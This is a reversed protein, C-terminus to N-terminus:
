GVYTLGRVRLRGIVRSSSLSVQIVEGEADTCYIPSNSLPSAAVEVVDQDMLEGFDDAEDSVPAGLPVISLQTSADPTKKLVLVETPSRWALDQVAFPVTETGAYMLRAGTAGSVRGDVEHEVRSVLLEDGAAGRVAAILRTGDRSVLFDVVRKGSIGPVTVERLQGGGYVWLKAGRPTRDVLWLRGSVDWAPSLLNTGSLVHEVKAERDEVQALHVTRGDTTVGAVGARQGGDLDVAVRRLQYDATGFAGEVPTWQKDDDIKGLRGGVIGYLGPPSFVYGPDYPPGSDIVVGGAETVPRGDVTVRLRLISPDQRLTWQLQAVMKESQEKSPSAGSGPLDVEASGDADVDVRVDSARDVSPLYTSAILQGGAPPGQLLSRVLSTALQAGRPVYVAEPVLIQAAVDLFYVQQRVFQEDFWRRPVVLAQPAEEIRRQSGEWVMKFELTSEAPTLQGAWAGRSNFREAGELRVRVPDSYSVTADTYTIIERDPHWQSRSARMLYERAVTTSVPKATMAALFGDVIEKSTADEKPPPPVRGSSPPETTAVDVDEVPGSEPLTVCSSLLGALLVSVVGAFMRRKSVRGTM